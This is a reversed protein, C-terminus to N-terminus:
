AGRMAIAHVWGQFAALAVANADEIDIEVTVVTAPTTGYPLDGNIVGLASAVRERLLPDTLFGLIDLWEQARWSMATTSAQLIQYSQEDDVTISVSEHRGYFSINDFIHERLRPDDIEDAILHWRRATFTHTVLSACYTQYDEEMLALLSELRDATDPDLDLFLFRDGLEVCFSLHDRQTNWVVGLEEDTHLDRTIAALDRRDLITDRITAVDLTHIRREVIKRFSDYGYRQEESEHVLRFLIYNEAQVIELYKVTSTTSIAPFIRGIAVDESIGANLFSQTTIM